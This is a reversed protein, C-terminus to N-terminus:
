KESWNRVVLKTWNTERGDSVKKLTQAFCDGIINNVSTAVEKVFTTNCEVNIEDHVYNIAKLGWEPNAEGLEIIKILARKLATAETRSWIAALCKTYPLDISGDVIKVLHLIKNQVSEIKNIAYYRGDVYLLNKKNSLEAVLKKRFNVVEPYLEECGKIAAECAEIAVVEGSNSKIQAQIRKAGAGNLWGYYTNKAADRYMKYPLVKKNKAIEQWTVDHGLAKAVYVGVKSHNDISDDNCGAIATEDNAVDAAIRGHSAALDVIIFSRNELKDVTVATRVPHINFQELAPNAKASISQLNPLDKFIKSMGSSFRGTGTLTNFVTQVRETKAASRILSETQQIPIKISRLQSLLKIEPYEALDALATKNLSTIKLNYKENLFGVLKKTQTHNLTPVLDVWKSLLEKQISVCRDLILEAQSKDFPLGNYELEVACGIIDNELQWAEKLGDQELKSFGFKSPNEYVNELKKYLHYTIFPDFLAYEIQETTLESGWDSKQETKDVPLGLFKECLNQLGYGGSLVKLKGYDGFFVMAGKMTDIINKARKFGFKFKLFRLDFHINQGIIQTQNDTIKEGLLNIFESLDCEIEQRNSERSGFDFCYVKEGNSLQILRIFGKHPHLGEKKKTDNGFTEIDLSITKWENIETLINQYDNDKPLVVRNIPTPITFSEKRNLIQIRNATEVHEWVEGFINLKSLNELYELDVDKTCKAILRKVEWDHKQESWRIARDTDKILWAQFVEDRRDEFPKTQYVNERKGNLTKKSSKTEIGMSGLLLGIPKFDFEASKKFELKKNFLLFYNDKQELLYEFVEVCKPNNVSLEQGLLELIGSERIFECQALIQQKDIFSNRLVVGDGNAAQISGGLLQLQTTVEYGVTSVYLLRLQEYYGESDKQILEATVPLVQGYRNFLIKAELSLREEQTLAQKDKLLKFEDDSILKQSELKRYLEETSTEKLEEVLDEIEDCTISSEFHDTALDLDIVTVNERKLGNVVYKKYDWYEKNAQAVLNNFYTSAKECHKLDPYETLWEEDHSNLLEKSFDFIEQSKNEVSKETTGLNLFPSDSNRDSVFILRDTSQDRDRMLFQRVEDSSLKGFFIGCDLDLKNQTEISLGTGASPSLLSVQHADIAESITIQGKKVKYAIHNPDISTKSDYVFVDSVGANIFLKEINSTGWKSTEKQGTLMMMVRDGKMAKSLAVAVVDSPSKKLIKGNKSYTKYGDSVYCNYSKEAYENFIIYPEIDGGLLGIFFKIVDEDADADAIVFQGKSEVVVKALERLKRFIRERKSSCTSSTLLHKIVQVVEDILILGGKFKNVDIKWLSDIVLSIFDKKTIEGEIDQIYELGLRSSLSEALSQRHVCSLVPQKDNKAEKTWQEFLWTKGTGKGGVVVVLPSDKPRDFYQFKPSNFVQNPTFGITQKSSDVWDFWSVANKFVQLLKEKGQNVLLDDVGKDFGYWQCIKLQAKPAELLRYDKDRTIRSIVGKTTRAIAERASKKLDNDLALYITRDPHLFEAFRVDGDKIFSTTHGPTYLAPILLASIIAGAKKCSETHVVPVQPNAKIWEWGNCGVPFELGHKVAIAQWIETPLELLGLEIEKGVPNEYKVPKRKILRPTDPKFVKGCVWGGKLVCGFNRHLHWKNLNQLNLFEVVDDGSISKVNLESISRLVGSNDWEQLHQEHSLLNHTVISNVKLNTKIKISM